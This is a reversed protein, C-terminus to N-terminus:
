IWMCDVIVVCMLGIGIIGNVNFFAFNVKSLDDSKVLSHEYVLLGAVVVVGSIYLVGLAPHWLMGMLFVIM